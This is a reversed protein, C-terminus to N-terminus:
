EFSCQGQVCSPSLSEPDVCDAMVCGCAAKGYEAALLEAQQRLSELDTSENVSSYCLFASLCPAFVSTVSCDADTECQNVSALLDSAAQELAGCERLEPQCLRYGNLGDVCQGPPRFDCGWACDVSACDACLRPAADHDCSDTLAAPVVASADCTLGTGFANVCDTDVDCESVLECQGDGGQAATRPQGAPWSCDVLECEPNYCHEPVSQQWDV